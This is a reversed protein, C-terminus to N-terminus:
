LKQDLLVGALELRKEMLDLSKEPPIEKIVEKTDRDVIKITIRNTAEHIGFKAVSHNLAASVQEMMKKRKEQYAERQEDTLQGDNAQEEHYGQIEVVVEAHMQAKPAEVTKTVTIPSVVQPAVGTMPEVYMSIVEMDRVSIFIIRMQGALARFFLVAM